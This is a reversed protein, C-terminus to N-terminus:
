VQAPVSRDVAVTSSSSITAPSQDVALKTSLFKGLDIGSLAKVSAPVQTLFNNIVNAVSSENTSSNIVIESTRELPKSVLRAFEPLVELIQSMVAADNYGALAEARIKMANAEAAGIIEIRKSQLLLM